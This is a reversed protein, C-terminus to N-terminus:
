KVYAMASALMTATQERTIQATPAIYGGESSMIGAASLSYIAESAWVPIESQDAFTPIVPVDCLGVINSLMVAAQARTIEENPLFCLKGEVLTGSIYNMEYAATVYGRMAAPIDADDAFVTKECPAVESIGVAHMAMVLFEARTVTEQPHFFYQKGIQEGSMVGAETLTLAAVHARSDLMDAYTMSLGSAEVRLNVTAAASYNGYKDRAVYSFSDSGTFDKEPVYVYDGTERNELRVSGNKPYSVVEFILSDGDPDYASLRGYTPMDRYTSLELSLGSAVSVTPTYNIEDLLYLNCVMPVNGGNATFTFSAHTLNEAAASFTLYSLNEGSVTQGGAVRTSGLLLEGAATSPLSQVTIYDVKQLNLARAFADASFVIDNGVPASMAMDTGAAIVGVGYSLMVDEAVPKKDSVAAVVGGVAVCLACAGAAIGIKVQKRM